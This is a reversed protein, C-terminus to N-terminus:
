EGNAYCLFSAQGGVVVGSAVKFTDSPGSLAYEGDPLPATFTGDDQYARVVGNTDTFSVAVGASTKFRGTTIVDEGEYIVTGGDSPPIYQIWPEGAQVWAEAGAIPGLIKVDTSVPGIRVITGNSLVYDTKLEPANVRGATDVHYSGLITDKAYTLALITGDKLRLHVAQDSLTCSAAYALSAATTVITAAGVGALAAM